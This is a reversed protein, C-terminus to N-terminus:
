LHLGSGKGPNKELKKTYTEGCFHWTLPCFNFNSLIFFYFINLKGLKCLYKGIRKLVNLQRDAKKCLESIHIDFKLKFDITVGLVTM